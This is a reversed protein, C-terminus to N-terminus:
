NKITMYKRSKPQSDINRLGQFLQSSFFNKVRVERYQCCAWYEDPTPIPLNPRSVERYVERNVERYVESDVESNTNKELILSYKKFTLKWIILVNIEM